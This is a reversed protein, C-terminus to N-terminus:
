GCRRPVSPAAKIIGVVDVRPYCRQTLCYTENAFNDYEDILLYLRCSGASRPLCDCATISPTTTLTPRSRCTSLYDLLFVEILTNLNAHIENRPARPPERREGAM